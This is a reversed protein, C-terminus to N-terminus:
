TTPRAPMGAPPQDQLLGGPGLAEENDADGLDGPAEILGADGGYVGGQTCAMLAPLALLLLLMPECRM